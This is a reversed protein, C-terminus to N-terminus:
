GDTWALSGQGCLDCILSRKAQDLLSDIALTGAVRYCRDLQVGVGAFDQDLYRAEEQQQMWGSSDRLGIDM